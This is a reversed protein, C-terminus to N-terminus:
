ATGERSSALGRHLVRGTAVRRHRPQPGLEDLNLGVSIIQDVGAAAAGELAQALLGREDLLVLHCHTDVLSPLTESM